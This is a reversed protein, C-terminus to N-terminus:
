DSDDESCENTEGDTIMRELVKIYQKIDEKAMERIVNQPMIAFYGAYNKGTGEQIVQLIRMSQEIDYLLQGKKDVPLEFALYKYPSPVLEEYRLDQIIM